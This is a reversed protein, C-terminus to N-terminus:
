ASNLARELFRSGRYGPHEARAAFVVRGGAVFRLARRRRPRIVHPGFGDHHYGLYDTLGRVGAIVDAYPGRNDRGLTRRLTSLLLGSRVGVLRRATTLVRASRQDLMRGVPGRRDHFVSRIAIMDPQTSLVRASM